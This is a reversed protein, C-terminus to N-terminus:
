FSRNFVQLMSPFFGNEKENLTIFGEPNFPSIVYELRM